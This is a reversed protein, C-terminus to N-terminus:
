TARRRRWFKSIQLLVASLLPTGMLGLTLITFFAWWGGRWAYAITASAVTYVLILVPNGAVLLWVQMLYNVLLM